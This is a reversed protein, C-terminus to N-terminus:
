SLLQPASWMRKRPVKWQTTEQDFDPTLFAETGWMTKSISIKSGCGDDGTNSKATRYTPSLGAEIQRSQEATYRRHTCNVGRGFLTEDNDDADEIALM